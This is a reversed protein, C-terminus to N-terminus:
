DITVQSATPKSAAKKKKVRVVKTPTAAGDDDAADAPAAAPKAAKKKPKPKPMDAPMEEAELVRPQLKAPAPAADMLSDLRVIPIDDVDDDREGGKGAATSPQRASDVIYFPDDRQRQLRAERQAKSEKASPKAPEPAAPAEPTPEEDFDAHAALDIGDLVVYADPNVIWAYLDVDFPAAVRAQANAGLPGLAHNFFLPSLLDLSRPPHAVQPKEESVLDEAEAAKDAGASTPTHAELDKEILRFLQRYEVTREQVEADVTMTQVAELRAVVQKTVVAIDDFDVQPKRGDDAWRSSISSAWFAYMKVAGHVCAASTSADCVSADYLAPTLLLPITSGPSSLEYAYEGLIWAAAHLVKRTERMDDGTGATSSAAPKRVVSAAPWDSSPLMRGDRLLAVMVRTAHPRIARVRATVDILQDRIRAGVDNGDPLNPVTALHLLTDIYWSFDVVNAYTDYSGLALIRQVIELRYSPSLTPNYASTIAALSSSTPDADTAAGGSALSARLAAAAAGTADAATSANAPSPPTLHSLLQGVISELNRSVAMGSVLELARLRISLDPDEISEFIVDQHQAVLHPHSPLIKVLALLAIYKLNQDSDTLFAALKEVCIEALDDGGPQTLMGGIIITHICEYLLSMAPTTSIITSIPPVLKKVLRPELPTLSGFLKIIKILMWNNTSTTLLRFLQPSLPLFPRPDRRALECIINVAASVVSLDPDDLKERLRDWGTELLDPSKIILAYFVLIAKKRIMPKSHTLLKIVDPGLHRALDPTAIHALGNLAVAVDLPNSAQLDKKIMNTSLILVDTDASFCQAAALYGIHKHHYKSSAMTELMHFNAGSFPYGLMQLYTLKLVAEAKVELDGSRVEHRIEDMVQAVYKPEDKGRHSRLGKILASLSREFM